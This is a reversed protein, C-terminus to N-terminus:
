SFLRLADPSGGPIGRAEMTAYIARLQARIQELGPESVPTRNDDVLAGGLTVALQRGAAVM